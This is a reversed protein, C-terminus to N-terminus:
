QSVSTVSLIEISPSFSQGLGEARTGVTTQGELAFQGIDVLGFSKESSYAMVYSGNGVNRHVPSHSPQFTHLM